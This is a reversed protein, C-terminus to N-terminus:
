NRDTTTDSDFPVNTKEKDKETQKLAFVKEIVEMEEFRNEEDEKKRRWNTQSNYHNFMDKISEAFGRGKNGLTLVVM